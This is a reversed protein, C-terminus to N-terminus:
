YYPVQSKFTPPTHVGWTRGTETEPGSAVRAHFYPLDSRWKVEIPPCTSLNGFQKMCTNARRQMTQKNQIGQGSVLTFLPLTAFKGLEGVIFCQIAMDFSSLNGLCLYQPLSAHWWGSAEDCCGSPYSPYLPGVWASNPTLWCRVWELGWVLWHQAPNVVFTFWLLHHGKDSDRLLQHSAIPQLTSWLGAISSVTIMQLERLIRPCSRQWYGTDSFTLFRTVDGIIVSYVFYIWIINMFHISLVSARLDQIIRSIHWSEM